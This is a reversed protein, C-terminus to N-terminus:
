RASHTSTAPRRTSSLHLRDLPRALRRSGDPSRSRGAFRAFARPAEGDDPLRAFVTFALANLSAGAVVALKAWLVPNALYEGAQSVAAPRGDCVGTRPRNGGVAAASGRRAPCPPTLGILRLDVLVIGGILLALGLVHLGSVAAYVPSSLAVGSLRGLATLLGTVAEM